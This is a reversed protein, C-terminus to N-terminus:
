VFAEMSLQFFDALGIIHNLTMQRKNNLVASVISETKFIPVLDKQRLGHDQLLQRVLEAGRLEFLSDPYHIDDYAEILEGVLLMYDHEDVTLEGKDILWNLQEVLADYEVESKPIRPVFENLLNIYQSNIM